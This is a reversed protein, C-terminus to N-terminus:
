GASASTWVEEFEAQGIEEAQFESEANIEDVSPVPESSLIAYPTEEAPGAREKRGDRFVVVKRTERGHEDLEHFWFVAEDPFEHHWRAKLYRM